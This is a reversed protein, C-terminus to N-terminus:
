MLKKKPIQATPPQRTRAGLYGEGKIMSAKDDSGASDKREKEKKRKTMKIHLWLSASLHKQTWPGLKPFKRSPAVM